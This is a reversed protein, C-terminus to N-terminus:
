VIWEACDSRPTEHLIEHWYQGVCFLLLIQNMLVDSVAALSAHWIQIAGVPM